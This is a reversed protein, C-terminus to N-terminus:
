FSVLLFWSASILPCLFINLVLQISLMECIIERLAWLLRALCSNSGGNQLHSSACVCTVPNTQICVALKPRAPPLQLGPEGPAQTVEGGWAVERPM